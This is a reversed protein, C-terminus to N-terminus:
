QFSTASVEGILDEYIGLYKAKKNGLTYKKAQLYAEEGQRKFENANDLLTNCTQALGLPDEPHVYNMKTGWIERLTPINGGVLACRSAAAELFSLGFPEYKAPLVYLASIKLWNMIQKRNLEGLFRVNRPCTYERTKAGAIFIEGDIYSAARLLLDVNKAEDWLRGMSFIIPMKSTFEALPDVPPLALGNYVVQSNYITGYLKQCVNLLGQSPFVVRDARKFALSVMEFYHDYRNPLSDKKVSHWWSTVCSHAVLITPVEWELSVQAYNNFHLLDPKEQNYLERIWQDAQAIDEWPDDMWELKYPRHYFAIGSKQLKVLQIQQSKSPNPGMAVLVVEIQEEVLCGALDIAYHWVGGATDTTMLIKM